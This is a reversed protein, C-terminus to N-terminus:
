FYTNLNLKKDTLTPNSGIASIIKRKDDLSGAKFKDQANTLRVLTSEIIKLVDEQEEKSDEAESEIQKIQAEIDATQKLYTEESIIGKDLFGYARDLKAKLEKIREARNDCIPHMSTTERVRLDEIARENWRSLETPLSYCEVLEMIQSVLDKEEISPQKCCIEKSKHTCHYYVYNHTNGNKQKKHKREATVNFGCQGCRLMGSLAFNQSPVEKPLGKGALISQILEYEARTIMAVHKGQFEEQTHPDYFFGAYFPNHLAAHFTQYALPNGTKTQFGWQTNAIECVQRASYEGTLVLKFAGQIIGFREPDPIITKTALDHM